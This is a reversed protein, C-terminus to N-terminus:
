GSSIKTLSKGYRKKSVILGLVPINRLLVFISYYLKKYDSLPKNKFNHSTKSENIVVKEAQNEIKIVDGKAVDLINKIDVFFDGIDINVFSKQVVNEEKYEKSKGNLLLESSISVSNNNRYFEKVKISSKKLLDQNLNDIILFFDRENQWYFNDPSIFHRVSFLRNLSDHGIIPIGISNVEIAIRASSTPFSSIFVDVNKNILSNSFNDEWEIHVFRVRDVNLIDLEKFINEKYDESLPGFHYHLGGTEKLVKSIIKHYEYIYKTEFKYSRASASATILNKHNKFPEYILSEDCDFSPPIIDIINNKNISKLTYYYSDNKAIYKTISSNSIALSTGHDYVWSLIIEKALHKQILAGGVVDNHSVYPFLKEPALNWLEDILFDIKDVFSDGKAKIFKVSSSNFYKEIIEDKTKAGETSYIYVKKGANTFIKILDNIERIIGGGVDSSFGYVLLAYVDKKYSKKHIHYKKNFINIRGISELLGDIQLFYNCNQFIYEKRQPNSFAVESSIRHLAELIEEISALNKNNSSPGDDLAGDITSLFRDENEIRSLIVDKEIGNFVHEARKSNFNRSLKNKEKESLSSWIGKQSYNYVSGYFNLYKIKENTISQVIQYRVLDGRCFDESMVKYSNHKFINKFMFTSTHYYFNFLKNKDYSYKHTSDDKIELNEKYIQNSDLSLYNHAVACYDPNKELFEVQKELKHWNVFFDDGDLVQFYKGSAISIAKFFTKANGLNVDNKYYKICPFSKQYDFVIEATRDNSADDYVIIEYEFNVRQYLISELAFAITQEENYVPVIVSLKM